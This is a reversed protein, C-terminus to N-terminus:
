IPVRIRLTSGNGPRSEVELDGNIARLPVDLRRAAAGVDYGIMGMFMDCAGDLPTGQM